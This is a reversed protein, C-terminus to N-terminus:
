PLVMENRVGVIGNGISLSGRFSNSRSNPCPSEGSSRRAIAV